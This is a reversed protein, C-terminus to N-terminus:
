RPGKLVGRSWQWVCKCSILCVCCHQVDSDWVCEWVCEHVCACACACAKTQVHLVWRYSKGPDLLCHHDFGTSYNHLDLMSSGFFLDLKIKWSNLPISQQYSSDSASTQTKSSSIYKLVSLLPLYSPSSLSILVPWCTNFSSFLWVYTLTPTLAYINPRGNEAKRPLDTEMLSYFLQTVSFMTLLPDLSRHHWLCGVGCLFVIQVVKVLHTHNVVDAQTVYTTLWLALRGSYFSLKPTLTLLM